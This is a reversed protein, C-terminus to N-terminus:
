VMKEFVDDFKLSIVFPAYAVGNITTIKRSDSNVSITINHIDCLLKVFYLGIGNGDATKIANKGRFGKVFIKELEEKSCYPSYSEISVKLTNSPTDEFLIKVESDYYAYKVANEIILLPILEFTRYARMFKYSSGSIHIHINRKQYNRFIRRIKDFKRYISCDILTGKLAEPDKEYNFLSYRSSIM